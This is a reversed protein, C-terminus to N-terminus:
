EGGGEVVASTIFAVFSAGGAGVADFRWGLHTSCGACLLMSWAFGPFWSYELMPEGLALVNEAETITVIEFIRGAPNAFVFRCAGGLPSFLRTADALRTACRACFFAREVRTEGAADPKPARAGERKPTEDRLLLREVTM